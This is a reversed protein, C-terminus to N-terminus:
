GNEADEGPEDRYQFSRIHNKRYEDQWEPGFSVWDELRVPLPNGKGPGTQKDVGMIRRIEMWRRNCQIRDPYYEYLDNPMDKLRFVINLADPLEVFVHDIRDIPIIERQTDDMQGFQLEIFKDM